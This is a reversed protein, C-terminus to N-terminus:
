PTSITLSTGTSTVQVGDHAFFSKADAETALHLCTTKSWYQSKRVLLSFAREESNSYCESFLETLHFFQLCICRAFFFFVFTLCSPSTHLTCSPWAALHMRQVSSNQSPTITVFGWMALILNTPTLVLEPRSFLAVSPMHLLNANTPAFFSIVPIITIKFNGSSEPLYSAIRLVEREGSKMQKSGEWSQPARSKNSNSKERHLLEEVALEWSM